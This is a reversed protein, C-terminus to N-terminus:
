LWSAGEAEFWTSAEGVDLGAHALGPLVLERLGERVLEAIRTRSLLGHAPLEPGPWQRLSGVWTRVATRVIWPVQPALERLSSADLSALYGFGVRAHDVEDALLGRLAAKATPHEAAALCEGLYSTSISENVCCVGTVLVATALAGSVGGLAPPTDHELEPWPQEAGAYLGAMTRCIQAHRLEDSAGRAALWQLALPRQENLCRGAFHAFFAAARLESQARQTWM